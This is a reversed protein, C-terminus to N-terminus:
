KNIKNNLIKNRIKLENSKNLELKTNKVSYKVKM